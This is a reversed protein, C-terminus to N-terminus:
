SASKLTLNSFVRSVLARLVAIDGAAEAEDWERAADRM